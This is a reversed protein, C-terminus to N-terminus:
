ASQKEHQQLPSFGRDHQSHSVHRGSIAKMYGDPGRNQFPNLFIQLIQPKVLHCLTSPPVATSFYNGAKYRPNIQLIKLSLAESTLLCGEQLILLNRLDSLVDKSSKKSSLLM